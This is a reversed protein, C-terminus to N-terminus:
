YARDPRLRLSRCWLIFLCDFYTARKDPLWNIQLRPFSEPDGLPVYYYSISWYTGNDCAAFGELLGLGWETFAAEHSLSWSGGYQGQVLGSQSDAYEAAESSGNYKKFGMDMYQM